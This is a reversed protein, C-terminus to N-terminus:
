VASIYQGINSIAGTSISDWKVKISAVTMANDNIVRVIIRKGIGGIIPGDDWDSQDEAKANTSTGATVEHIKVDTGRQGLKDDCEWVQVKNNAATYTVTASYSNIAIQAGHDDMGVEFNTLGIPLVYKGDTSSVRTADQYLYIVTNKASTATLAKWTVESSANYALDSRQAGIPKARWGKTSSIANIADVVDGYTTDSSVNVTLDTTTAGDTDDAKLVLATAATQTATIKAYTDDGVYYIGIMPFATITEIKTETWDPFVDREM